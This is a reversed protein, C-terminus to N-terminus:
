IFNFQIGFNSAQLGMQIDAFIHAAFVAEQMGYVAIAQHHFITHAGYHNMKELILKTNKKTAFSTITLLFFAM